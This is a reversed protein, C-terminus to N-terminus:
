SGPTARLIPRALHQAEVHQARMVPLRDVPGHLPKLFASCARESRQYRSAAVDSSATILRNAGATSSAKSSSRLVGFAIASSCRAQVALRRAIGASRKGRPMRPARSRRCVDGLPCAFRVRRSSDRRFDLTQDVRTSAARLAFFKASDSRMRSSSAAMPMSSFSELSPVVQSTARHHARQAGMGNRM